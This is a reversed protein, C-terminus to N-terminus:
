SQEGDAVSPVGTPTGAGGWVQRVSESRVPRPPRTAVDAGSAGVAKVVLSSNSGGLGHLNILAHRLVARRAGEGVYDLDCEPDPDSYNATPPIWGERMALACAAIELPGAASLPNGTVGKISSVPLREAHPGFLERIMASEVRDMILDSPGHACVYDVDEPRLCANTLADRMSALLGSAPESGASDVSDGAGVIELYPVAGRAMAGVSDELILMCAGEAMIGGTRGRDFPRSVGRPDKGNSSPVLGSSCFAAVMLANTASDAGGTIVLDAKGRRILESAQAVADLGAACATSITLMRVDVGLIGSIACAIAHPQSAGVIYPAIRAPGRAILNEKAREIMDVAGTSVGTVLRVPAHSALHKPDLAADKIALTAAALGLQTHRAMRNPRVRGDVFRSLDFDKVIGAIRTPYKAADFHTIWDIGSQGAALTRWFDAKGIGNPAV